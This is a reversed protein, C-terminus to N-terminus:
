ANLVSGLRPNAPFTLLTLLYDPDWTARLRKARLSAKYSSDRKIVNLAIKRLLALNQAAHRERVRSDDERFVVDLVWHLSNEIGWHGRVAKGFEEASSTLSTLYYRRETSTIGHIERTAEVMGFGALDKWEADAGSWAVDNTLFYKRTEIRGHGKEVTEYTTGSFDDVTATQFYLEVDEYLNGHNRKLALVYDAKKDRIEEAIDKQCGMADITVINGEVSLQDLLQPIATMENSKGSVVEQGLVLGHDVSWAQVLHLPGLERAGDFSRRLSKGDIAVVGRLTEELCRVWCTFLEEFRKPNLLSFVRRFTDHSPIGNPLRLFKSFWQERVRGFEAISTFCDAGSIVACIAIVIIDVLEHKKRRDDVRPDELQTFEQILLREGNPGRVELIIELEREGV